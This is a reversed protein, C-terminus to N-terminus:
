IDTLKSVFHAVSSVSILTCPPPSVSIILYAEPPLDYQIKAKGDNIFSLAFSRFYKKVDKLSKFPKRGRWCIPLSMDDSAEKLYRGSREKKV